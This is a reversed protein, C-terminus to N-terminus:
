RAISVGVPHGAIRAMTLKKGEFKNDALSYSAGNGFNTGMRGPGGYGSAEVPSNADPSSAISSKLRSM